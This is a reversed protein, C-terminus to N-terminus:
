FKRLASRNTEPAAHLLRLSRDPQDDDVGGRRSRFQRRHRDPQARRGHHRPWRQLAERAADRVPDDLGRHRARLTEDRPRSVVSPDFGSLTGSRAVIELTLHLRRAIDAWDTVPMGVEAYVDSPGTVGVANVGIAALLRATDIGTVSASGKATPSRVRSDIAIRAQGQGGLMSADGVDFMAVGDKFKITAALDTIPM